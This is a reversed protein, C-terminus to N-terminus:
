EVIRPARKKQWVGFVSRGFSNGVLPDLLRSMPVMMRDWLHLQWPSAAPAKTIYRNGISAFLGVSDLYCLEVSDLGAPVASLLTRRNYRRFHGLARDFPSYLWQYAPSLVVLKGGPGLREAARLLEASDDEIHELVDIYLISDFRESAPLTALTGVSVSCNPPLKGTAVAESIKNALEVDPELCSWRGHFGPTLMATTGGLGAGVELVHSGLHPRVRDSFYAKWHRADIFLELENGVYKYHDVMTQLTEGNSAGMHCALGFADLIM